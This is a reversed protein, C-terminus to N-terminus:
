VNTNPEAGCEVRWGWFMKTQTALEVHCELGIVTEYEAM